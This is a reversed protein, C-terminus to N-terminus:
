TPTIITALLRRVRQGTSALVPAVEHDARAARAAPGRREADAARKM